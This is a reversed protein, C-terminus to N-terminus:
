NSAPEPAELLSRLGSAYAHTGAFRYHLGEFLESLLERKFLPRSEPDLRQLAWHMTQLDDPALERGILRQVWVVLVTPDDFTMQANKAWNVLLNKADASLDHPHSQLTSHAFVGIRRAVLDAAASNSQERLLAALPSLQEIDISNGHAARRATAQENSWREKALTHQLTQNDRTLKQVEQELKRAESSKQAVQRRWLVATTTAAPIVAAAVGALLTFVPHHGEAAGIMLGGLAGLTGFVGAWSAVGIATPEPLMIERLAPAAKIFTDISPEPTTPPTLPAFGQEIRAIL